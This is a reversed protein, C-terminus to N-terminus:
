KTVDDTLEFIDKVYTTVIGGADEVQIDYNFTGATDVDAPTFDFRVEGNIADTITATITVPTNYSITLKITSGTLDVPTKNESLTAIIPYTDGRYRKISNDTVSM